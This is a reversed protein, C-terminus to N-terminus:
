RALKELIGMVYGRTELIDPIGGADDVAAPGANYASLARFIDGKYRDLLQRLYRAGAAINEKPDFADGAGLEGATSPMLQMLGQAGKASVACPRFGSEQEIVARLLKAELGYVRAATEIAPALEADSLRDCGPEAEGAASWPDMRAGAARAQRRVAERQVAAAARQREAAERMLDGSQGSATWAALVLIWRMM